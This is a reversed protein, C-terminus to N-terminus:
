ICNMIIFLWDSPCVKFDGIREYKMKNKPTNAKDVEAIKTLIASAGAAIM